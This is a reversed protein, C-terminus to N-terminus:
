AASGPSAAAWERVLRQYDRRQEGNLTGGSRSWLARIEENVQSATREPRELVVEASTSMAHVM